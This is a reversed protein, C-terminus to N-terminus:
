QKVKKNTYLNKSLCVSDIWAMVKYSGGLYNCHSALESSDSYKGNNACEELIEAIDIQEM